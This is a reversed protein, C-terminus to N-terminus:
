RWGLYFSSIIWEIGAAASVGLPMVLFPSVGSCAYIEEPSYISAYIALIRAADYQMARRNEETHIAPPRAALLRLVPWYHLVFNGFYYLWSGVDRLAEQIMSCGMFSMLIVVVQVLCSLTAAAMWTRKAMYSYPALVLVVDTIGLLAAAWWTLHTVNGAAYCALLLVAGEIAAYM